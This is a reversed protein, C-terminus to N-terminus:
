EQPVVKWWNGDEPHDENASEVQKDSGLKINTDQSNTTQVQFEKFEGGNVIIESEKADEEGDRINLLLDQRTGTCKFSGGNIIATGATVYVGHHLSSFSGGDIVLTARSKNGGCLWFISYNSTEIAGQKEADSDKVVLVGGASINILAQAKEEDTINETIKHGNLDLVFKFNANITKTLVINGTLKITDGDQGDLLAATLEEENSVSVQRAAVVQKINEGADVVVFGEAVVADTQTKDDSLVLTRGTGLEYTGGKVTIKATDLGNRGDAKGQDAGDIGNFLWYSNGSTVKFTGDEVTAEGYVLQIVCTSDSVEFTGKKILLSADTDAKDQNYVQFIHTSNATIKGGTGFGGNVVTLHGGKVIKFMCLSTADDITETLNKRYLDLKITKNIEVAKTLAFSKKLGVTAGDKVFKVADQLENEDSVFVSEAAVVTNWDEATDVTLGAPLYTKVKDDNILNSPNFKWFKGGEVRIVATGNGSATNECNLTFDKGEYAPDSFTCKFEGGTVVAKGQAVYLVSASKTEFYGSEVILNADEGNAAYSTDNVRFVYGDEGSATIKGTKNTSSDKITLKGGNVIEFMTDIGTFISDITYGKLDITVEKDITFMETLAVNKDLEILKNGDQKTAEDYKAKLQANGDVIEANFTFQASKHTTEDEVTETYYVDQVITKGDISPDVTNDSQRGFYIGLGEEDVGTIGFSKVKDDVVSRILFTGNEDLAEEAPQAETNPTLLLYDDSSSLKVDYENTKDQVPTVVNTVKGDNKIINNNNKFEANGLKLEEVGTEGTVFNFEKNNFKIKSSENRLEFAVVPGAIQVNGNADINYVLDEIFNNNGISLKFKSAKNYEVGGITISNVNKLNALKGAEVWYGETLTTAKFGLKNVVEAYSYSANDIGLADANNYVNEQLEDVIAAAKVAVNDAVTFTAAKPTEKKEGCAAFMVGSCTVLTMCAMVSLIKKM